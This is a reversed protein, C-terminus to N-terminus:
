ISLEDIKERLKKLANGRHSITNKKESSIEAMTHKEGAPIFLPDYGFGENGSPAFGITGECTGDATVFSNEGTKLVIVCRFRATRKEISVDKLADLLKRNNAASDGQKGAYRASFVGPEGNLFDVELGSDDALSWMGSKKYVWTAKIFANDFFTTGNEEIDPVPNWLDGMSVLEVSMDSLIEWIEKLKGKNASAVVIRKM